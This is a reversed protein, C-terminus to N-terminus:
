MPDHYFSVTGGAVAACFAYLAGDHAVDAFYLPVGAIVGTLLTIGVWAAQQVGLGWERRDLSDRHLQYYSRFGPLRIGVLSVFLVGFGSGAILWGYHLVRGQGYAYAGVAATAAVALVLFKLYRLDIM